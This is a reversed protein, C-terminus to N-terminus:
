MTDGELKPRRYVGKGRGGKRVGVSEHEKRGARFTCDTKTEDSAIYLYGFVFVYIM